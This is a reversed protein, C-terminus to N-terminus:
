VLIQDYIALLVIELLIIGIITLMGFTYKHWNYTTVVGQKKIFKDGAKLIIPMLLPVLVFMLLIYTIGVVIGYTNNYQQGKSSALWFIGCLSIISIIALSLLGVIANRKDRNEKANKITEKINLPFLNSFTNDKGSQHLVIALPVLLPLYYTLLPENGIACIFSPVIFIFIMYFIFAGMNPMSVCVNLFNAM